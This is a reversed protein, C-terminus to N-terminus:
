SKKDETKDDIDDNSIFEVFPCIGYKISKLTEIFLGFVGMVKFTGGKVNKTRSVFFGYLGKFAVKLIKSIMLVIKELMTYPIEGTSKQLRIKEREERDKQAEEKYQEARKKRRKANETRAKYYGNLRFSIFGSLTSSAAFIKVIIAFLLCLMVALCMGVILYFASGAVFLAICKIVSLITVGINSLAWGIAFCINFVAFGLIMFAALIYMFIIKIHLIGGFIFAIFLFTFALILLFGAFTMILTSAPSDVMKDSLRDIEDGIGMRDLIDIFSRGLSTLSCIKYLLRGIKLILWGGLMIPFAMLTLLSFWFLFQTYTCLNTRQESEDLAWLKRLAQYYKHHFSDTNIALLLM